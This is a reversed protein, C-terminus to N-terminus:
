TDNPLIKIQDTNQKNRYILLLTFQNKGSTCFLTKGYIHCLHWINIHQNSNLIKAYYEEKYKYVTIKKERM